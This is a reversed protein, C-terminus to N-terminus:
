KKELRRVSSTSREEGTYPRIMMSIKKMAIGVQVEVTKVAIEMIAAVEKYRLGDERVLRFITQCRPPLQRIADDIAKVLQSTIYYQEPDPIAGPLEAGAEELMETSFRRQKELHNLSQNRVATYLYVTLNRITDLTQRHEWIYLFVDSVIEEAAGTSGVFSEAFHLLRTFYIRYLQSYAAEDDSKTLREQLHKIESPEIM